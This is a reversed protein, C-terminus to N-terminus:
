MMCRHVCDRWADTGPTLGLSFCYNRCNQFNPQMPNFMPNQYSYPPNDQPYPRGCCPCVQRQVDYTQYPYQSM